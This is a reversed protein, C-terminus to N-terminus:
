VIEDVIGLRKMENSDMWYEKREIREYMKEDINSHSLIYEKIKEEYQQSFNFMDKVAHASGEMYQSGSHLLGVSFPHCITKVNPNNHGAMAILLGMSAAMSMIHITTPTHAKEIIDVLNFGSYIEGGPTSLMIEIPQNSGDNDMTMYPITAIHLLDDSIEDGIIIRRDKLCRYYQYQSPKPLPDSELMEALEELTLTANIDSM